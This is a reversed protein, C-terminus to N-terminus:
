LFFNVAMAVLSFHLMLDLAKVDALSILLDFIRFFKLQYANRMMEVNILPLIIGESVTKLLKKRYTNGQLLFQKQFRISDM